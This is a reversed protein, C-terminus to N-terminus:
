GLSGKTSAVGDRRPDAECAVRLARGLAKFAAEALHHDNRGTGRVHVRQARPGPSRRSRTSSSSCRSRGPASAASRSTSWPTRAARRRRRGGDGRVRGDPGLQRRLAPDRRSRRAGGRVGVRARARTRSRTTSTSTSTARRRWRSTSCGTTPSRAWCTTSSGSAPRSRRPARATSTSRSRSTRRARGDRSASADRRRAGPRRAHRAAHDHPRSGPSPQCPRARDRRCRRRPPRERRPRPGHRPPLVRAPPRPRVHAPRPRPVHVRAVGGGRAGGHRPRPPHLQHGVAAPALGAAELGAACGRVSACVREVNRAMGAQDRLAATVATASITSISGPPRYLAVRRITTAAGLAFGVRLGALAYAKSATRVVVLNPHRDRLGIVSAGTFESYAEDVVVAPVPRGDAAADAALGDLLGEIAGDPEAQGTPNNPNCLWVLTATALRRASPRRRRDGLGRRARPAPRRGPPRRAARRPDPVDPLDPRLDGGGRGRAPVGEHVHRPDRRRGRRARARGDRRRVRGRGGRRPPPLRGAPVRVADDRVPGRGAARRPARAARALHQPRVAAGADIPIGFREAVGEDTAEWSYSAPDTPSSVAFPSPSM